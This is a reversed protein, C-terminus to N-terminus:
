NRQLSMFRKSRGFYSFGYKNLEKDLKAQRREKGEFQAM